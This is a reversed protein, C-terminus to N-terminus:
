ATVAAPKATIAENMSGTRYGTLDLATHTYGIEKFRAAIEDRRTLVFAFDEGEVEIRAVSDHHRVRVQRLGLERLFGEAREVQSLNQATVQTGYPIRSALCAMSPKDWNELGLARAVARVDAKNMEAEIMPSRFRAEKMAKRGPRVDRTDDLNSGDVIEAYEGQRNYANLIDGLEHKCWYCRLPSNQRYREDELERSDLLVHRIGIQRALTVTEEKESGALSASVATVAVARDGLVDYAVKAVLTSDIGGSFAVIVSGMEAFLARMRELKATQLVNM